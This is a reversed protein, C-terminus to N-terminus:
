VYASQKQKSLLVENNSIQLKLEEIAVRKTDGNGNLTVDKTVINNLKMIRSLERELYFQKIQLALTKVVYQPLAEGFAKTTSDYDLESIELSYMSVADSVWQYELAQPLLTKERMISHFSDLINDATTNAM